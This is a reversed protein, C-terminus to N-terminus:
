LVFDEQCIGTLWVWTYTYYFPSPVSMNLCRRIRQFRIFKFKTSVVDADLPVTQLNTLVKSFCIHIQKIASCIFSEPLNFVIVIMLQRVFPSKFIRTDMEM